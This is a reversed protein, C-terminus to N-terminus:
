NSEVPAAAEVTETQAKYQTVLNILLPYVGSQTPLQGLINLLATAEQESVEFSITKGM